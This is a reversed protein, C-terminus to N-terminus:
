PQLTRVLDGSDYCHETEIEEVLSAYLEDSIQRDRSLIWLYDRTPHGVIAWSYDEALGIIWYDGWFPWFFTVELKANSVTDVVRARGRAEKLRGDLTELRCSNVVRIRGSPLSSYEAQTAVCGEQFEQPISAIEYWTGLYRNLDVYSVTTPPVTADCTKNPAGVGHTSVGFAMWVFLFVAAKM